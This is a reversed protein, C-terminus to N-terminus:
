QKSEVERPKFATSTVAGHFSEPISFEIEDAISIAFSIFDPHPYQLAGSKERIQREQALGSELYEDSPATRKGSFVEIAWRAQLEIAAFYPGKYMGVFAIGPLSSKPFVAKHLIVPQISDKEDFELLNLTEQPFFPLKLRYGTACLIVDINKAQDDDEFLVKGDQQVSKIGKRLKIDGSAVSEVYGDTICVFPLDSDPNVRLLDSVEGPNKGDATLAQFRKHRDQMTDVQKSKIRERFPDIQYLFQDIPKGKINRPVFWLRHVKGPINYVDPCLKALEVCLDAGSFANGVVVVGRANKCEEELSRMEGTHKVVGKFDTRLKNIEEPIWPHSFFGSAVIVHTFRLESEKQDRGDEWKVNWTRDALPTVATVKSNLHVSCKKNIEHTEAYHNLYATMEAKTLFVTNDPVLPEVDSFSCSAASLNTKLTAWTGGNPNSWLGGLQGNTEFLHIEQFVGSGIAYRASSLGSAGGGVIALRM